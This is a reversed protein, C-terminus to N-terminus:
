KTEGKPDTESADGDTTRDLDKEGKSSNQEPKSLPGKGDAEPRKSVDIEHQEFEKRANEINENTKRDRDDLFHQRKALLEDFVKVAEEESGPPSLDVMDLVRMSGQQLFRSLNKAAEPKSKGADGVPEKKGGKKNKKGGTGVFYAEDDEKKSLLRGKLGSADVTRQAQAAFKSPGADKSESIATPDIFRILSEVANIEETYAPMRADELKETLIASRKEQYLKEREAARKQDRQKAAERQHRRYERKSNYHEDKLQKVKTYQANQEDRAKQLEDRARGVNNYSQNNQEKFQRMEGQLREIEKEQQKSEPDDLQTRQESKKAKLANIDDDYAKLFSLEKKQRNLQSITAVAQKEDILKM